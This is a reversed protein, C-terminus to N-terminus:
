KIDLKSRMLKQYFYIQENTFKVIEYKNYNSYYNKYWQSMLRTTTKFDMISKWGLMKKAKQSNLKLLKSEFFKKDSSGFKWKAKKWYKSTEIILEKVTFNNKISPGFNFIQKHMKSNKNLELSLLMYGSVAELVHQWPRTSEPSRVIATKSNKWKKMCDPILRDNSWDGGGIVNGARAVCIKVKNNKLDFYSSLYSHIIMEAAAKSGSYPDKGGLIDMENYGRDLELNKYSKDSTILIVNCKRKTNRLAELINATGITNSNITEIPDIYSNKVLAQAALHFIYDPKFKNIIKKLKKLDKIDFFNNNVKKGVNLIKFLSPSTPINKSIGLINAGYLKLWITLWSGKFGTHGTILIKKGRFTEFIKLFEVSNKKM